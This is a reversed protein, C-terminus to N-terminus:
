FWQTLQFCTVTYDLKETSLQKLTVMEFLNNKVIVIYIIQIESNFM